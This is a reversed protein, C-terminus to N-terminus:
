VLSSTSDSTHKDHNVNANCRMKQANESHALKSKYDIKQTFRTNKIMFDLAKRYCCLPLWPQPTPLRM